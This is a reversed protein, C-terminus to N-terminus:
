YCRSSKYNGFSSTLTKQGKSIYIIILAIVPGGMYPVLICILSIIKAWEPLIKWYLILAYIAWVWIIIALIVIVIITISVGTVIEEGTEEESQEDSQAKIKRKRKFHEITEGKLASQFIEKNDKIYNLTKILSKNDYFIKYLENIKM